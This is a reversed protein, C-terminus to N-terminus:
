GEGYYFRDSSETEIAEIITELEADDPLGDCELVDRAYELADARMAEFNPFHAFRPEWGKRIVASLLLPKVPQGAEIGESPTGAGGTPTGDIRALIARAADLFPVTVARPEGFNSAVIRRLESLMAPAEAILRLDADFQEPGANDLNVTAICPMVDGDAHYIEGTVRDYGWPGPTFTEQTM